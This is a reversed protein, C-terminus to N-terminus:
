RMPQRTIWAQPQNMLCLSIRDHQWPVPLLYASSRVAQFNLFSSTPLSMRVQLLCVNMPLVREHTPIFRGPSVRGYTGMLAVEFGTLLYYPDFQNFQPVYGFVPPTGDITMTKIQGSIPPLLGLLTKLLTSKGAGNAGLIATFSNRKISLTIGSLVSQGRYGISLNDLMILNDQM